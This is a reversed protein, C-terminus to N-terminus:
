SKEVLIVDQTNSKKLTISVGGYTVKDGLKMLWNRFNSNPNSYSSTSGPELSIPVKRGDPVLYYSWKQFKFDNGSDEGTSEQSRDNDKTTDLLSVFIGSDEPLWFDSYGVPRRSEVVLARHDDLTVIATKYGAGKVEIPQLYITTNSIKDAPLCYVQDDNLWGLLFTEWVDLVTSGLEQEQGLGTRSGNGPAHLALGQSHLLEHIWLSWFHSNPVKLKKELDYSYTGPSFYVLAKEGQPTKLVVNRGLISNTIGTKADVPFYFLVSTVGDYNFRNGAADIFEQATENMLRAFDNPGNAVGHGIVYQSAKKPARIWSNSTAVDFQLKGNSFYTYWNTFDKAQSNMLKLFDATGPYDSFDIPIFLAKAHGTVPIINPNEPASNPLSLPFGVNSYQQKNTRQDLLKCQDVTAVVPSQIFNENNASTQTPKSTSSTIPAKVVIQGKDWILKNGSKVCTYKKNAVISTIGAKSCNAGSKAVGFAPLSITSTIVALSLASGLMKKM